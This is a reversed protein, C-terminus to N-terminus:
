VLGKMDVQDVYERGCFFKGHLVVPPFPDTGSLQQLTNNAAVLKLLM